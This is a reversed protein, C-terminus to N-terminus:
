QAPAPTTAAFAAEIAASLNEPSPDEVHAGNVILTPTAQVFEPMQEMSEMLQAMISDDNICAQTQADSLGHRAALKSLAARASEESRSARLIEEQSKFLDDIVDFFKDEGACRAIAGGAASVPAPPTPLVRYVLKAKGTDIYNAKIGPLVFEHFAACHGCTTSAYEIIEVPANRDGLVAEGLFPEIVAAEAPADPKASGPQCAALALFAASFVALPLQKM